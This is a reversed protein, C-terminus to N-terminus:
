ASADSWNNVILLIWCTVIASPMDNFNNAWYGNKAFDSDEPPSSKGNPTLATHIKGGFLICGFSAFVYITVALVAAISLFTSCCGFSHATFMLTHDCRFLTRFKRFLVRLKSSFGLLPLSHVLFLLLLTRHWATSRPRCARVLPTLIVCALGVLAEATMVPTDRMQSWSCGWISIAAIM